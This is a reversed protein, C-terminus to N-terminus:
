GSTTYILALNWAAERKLGWGKGGDERELVNWVEGRGIAGAGRRATGPWIISM